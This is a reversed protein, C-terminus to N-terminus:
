DGTTRSWRPPRREAFAAAGERADDSEFVSGAIARQEDWREDPAWGWQERLVRKTARVALPSNADIAAALELADDLAAGPMSLRNVLGLAYAREADIPAGTLALEMAIPEPVRRPLRLLGGGAAILGRRVEPIGLSAGRAAVILDCALAIEFGGAVAHGEVAAILPKDAPREVIGALGRGGAEPIRGAAFEALDMGSCFGGGAGVIVGVGLDGDSDLEDLAAAIGRAMAMDIANRREPRDLTLVLTRGRREVRVASDGEAM